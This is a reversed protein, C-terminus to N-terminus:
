REWQLGILGAVILSLFFLQRWTLTERFIWVGLLAVLVTSSGAWIANATGMPMRKLALTLFFFSLLYAIVAAVASLKQEFGHSAKMFLVAATEALITLLLFLYGM